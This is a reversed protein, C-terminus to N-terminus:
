LVISLLQRHKKEEHSDSRHNPGYSLMDRSPFYPGALILYVGLSHWSNASMYAWITAQSHIGFTRCGLHASYLALHVTQQYPTVRNHCLNEYEVVARPSLDLILVAILQKSFTTAQMFHLLSGLVKTISLPPLFFCILFFHAHLFPIMIYSQFIQM